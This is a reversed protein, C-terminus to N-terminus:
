NNPEFTEIEIENQFGCVPCEWRAFSDEDLRATITEYMQQVDCEVEDEELGYYGLFETIITGACYPTDIDIFEPYIRFSM